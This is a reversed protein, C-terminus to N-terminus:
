MRSTPSCPGPPIAKPTLAVKWESLRVQVTQPQSTGYAHAYPSAVSQLALGLALGVLQLSRIPRAMSRNTSKMVDRM